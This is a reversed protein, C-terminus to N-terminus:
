FENTDETSFAATNRSSVENSLVAYMLWSADSTKFSEFDDDLEDNFTALSSSIEGTLEM